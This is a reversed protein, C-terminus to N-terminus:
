FDRVHKFISFNWNLRPYIAFIQLIKYIKYANETTSSM